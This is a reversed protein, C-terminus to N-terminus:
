RSSMFHTDKAYWSFETFPSNYKQMVETALKTYGQLCKAVKSQYWVPPTQREQTERKGSSSCYVQTYLRFITILYTFQGNQMKFGRLGFEETYLYNKWLIIYSHNWELWHSWITVWATLKFSSETKNSQLSSNTSSWNFLRYLTTLIM